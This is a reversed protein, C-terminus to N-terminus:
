GTHLGGEDIDTEVAVGEQVDAVNEFIELIVIVAMPMAIRVGLRRRLLGRGYDRFNQGAFGDALTVGGLRVLVFFMMVLVFMVFGVGFTMVVLLAFFVVLVVVFFMVVIVLVVVDAVYDFGAVCEAGIATARFSFDLGVVFEFIALRFRVCRCGLIESRVVVRRLLIRRAVITSWAVISAALVETAGLAAIITTAISATVATTISSAATESATTSAPATTAAAM